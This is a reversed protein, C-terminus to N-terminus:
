EGFLAQALPEPPTTHKSQQQAGGATAFKLGGDPGGHAGAAKRLSILCHGIKRRRRPPRAALEKQFAFKHQSPNIHAADRQWSFQCASSACLVLARTTKRPGWFINKRCVQKNPKLQGGTQRGASSAPLAQM